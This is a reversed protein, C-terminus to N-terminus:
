SAVEPARAPLWLLARVGDGNELAVDGGHARAINRAIALGLGTGNSKTSFFPEFLRPVLDARIGPGRDVVEVIAREGDRRHRVVVASARARKDRAADAANVLLNLVAQRLRADDAEVEVPAGGPLEFTVGET